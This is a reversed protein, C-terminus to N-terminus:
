LIKLFSIAILSGLAEVVNGKTATINQFLAHCVIIENTHSSVFRGQVFIRSQPHSLHLVLYRNKNSNQM